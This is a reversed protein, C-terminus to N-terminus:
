ATCTRNRGGKKARYLAQDAAKILQGASANKEDRAAAGISVTVQLVKETAKKRKNQAPKQKPRNRGRLVFGAQSIAERLAEIHPLARQLDKNPFIVVFEEGGFRYARGGGSVRRLCAAVMRLVQDGVDHGYTDNVKKFHDVDVVALTYRRGVKLLFENMARRAPLGTLEDNFAMNFSSEVIAVALMFIAVGAWFTFDDPRWFGVMVAALCWCFGAELAEPKKAFRLLLAFLSLGLFVITLHNFPGGTFTENNMLPRNLWGIVEGARSLYLWTVAGTQLLLVMLRVLGHLTFLGREQWYCYLVLNLFVLLPALELLYEQAFPPSLQLSREVLSLLAIVWLVRSRNFRWGLFLAIVVALYPFLVVLPQWAEPIIVGFKLYLAVSFLGGPILLLLLSKLMPM